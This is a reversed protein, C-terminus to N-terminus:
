ECDEEDFVAKKKLKDGSLVTYKVQSGIIEPSTLMMLPKM